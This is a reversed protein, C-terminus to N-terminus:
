GLVTGKPIAHGRLMEGASMAAKGPRQVRTPRLAHRGCAVTLHEDLVTGPAGDQPVLLAELVKIREAGLDFWVGPWPNLARVKREIEAASQRWDIRGEDKALKHAYTVGEAPQPTAALSGQEIGELAEVILRAGMAALMDHLWTATADPLLLISESLLMAGTDLGADMQMITVGTAADGAMIARQIPAAGRWRPLLSAHVNLCGLRPADLVAQPLILGYAAVVAADAGIAAFAAQEEPSKLSKPTHVPIGRGHAFAHVPSPQEKHGRGAPRPPQSYVAAVQHGADLLSDLIPVSFDPTGMFVLKM